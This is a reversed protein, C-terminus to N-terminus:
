LRYVLLRTELRHLVNSNSTDTNLQFTKVFVTGSPFTWYGTPTFAIQEDPTIGGGNNPVGVFRTKLAGDSWLPVNPTYPILGSSPTMSPTNSFVGTQSLLAPFSGVSTTPMNYFAPSNSRGTLGYPQGSGAVVTISVPASTSMLGSSSVAVATLSYNGAGLGTATVTYPLNSAAGVFTSNAYFSV